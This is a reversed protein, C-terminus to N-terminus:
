GSDGCITGSESRKGLIKGQKGLIKLDSNYRRLLRTASPSGRLPKRVSRPDDAAIKIGRTAVVQRWGSERTAATM